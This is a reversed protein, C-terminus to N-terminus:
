EQLCEGEREDAPRQQVLMERAVVGEEGESNKWAGQSNTINAQFSAAALNGSLQSHPHKQQCLTM